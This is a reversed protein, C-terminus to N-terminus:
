NAQAIIAVVLVRHDLHQRGPARKGQLVISRDSPDYRWDVNAVGNRFINMPAHTVGRLSLEVPASELSGFVWDLETSTRLGVSRPYISIRELNKTGITFMRNPGPQIQYTVQTLVQEQAQHLYFGHWRGDRDALLEHTQNFAPPGVRKSALWDLTAEEDLTSWDHVAFPGRLSDGMGGRLALQSEFQDTQTVLISLPEGAAAFIRVPTSALNRLMDTEQNVTGSVPDLDFSSVSSYVFSNQDPTVGFMLPSLFLRNDNSMRFSHSLSTVGTHNVVAAFRGGYIDQHRAAYSVALGGGMSFGVAYLRSLDLPLTQAVWNLAVDVNKQAYGIGFNYEHAALPAVM